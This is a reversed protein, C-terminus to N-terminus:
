ERPCVVIEGPIDSQLFCQRMEYMAVEIGQRIMDPRAISLETDLDGLIRILVTRVKAFSDLLDDFMTWVHAIDKYEATETSTYILTNTEQMLEIPFLHVTM